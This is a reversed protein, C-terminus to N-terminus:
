LSDVVGVEFTTGLAAGLVAVVKRWILLRAGDDARTLWREGSEALRLSGARRYRPLVTGTHGELYQMMSHEYQVADHQVTSM